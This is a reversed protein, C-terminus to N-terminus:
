KLRGVMSIIKTNIQELKELCEVRSNRYFYRNSKIANNDGLVVIHYDTHRNTNFSSTACYPHTTSMSYVINKTNELDNQKLVAEIKEVGTLVVRGSHFVKVLQSGSDSEFLILDSKGNWRTFNVKQFNKYSGVSFYSLFAFILGALLFGLVDKWFGKFGRRSKYADGYKNLLSVGSIRTALSFLIGAIFFLFIVGVFINVSPGFVYFLVLLFLLVFAVGFTNLFAIQDVRKSFRM